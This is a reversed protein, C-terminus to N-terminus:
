ALIASIKLYLGLGNIILICNIITESSKNKSFFIILPEERKLNIAVAKRLM